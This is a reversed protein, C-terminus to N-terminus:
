IEEFNFACEDEDSNEKINCGKIEIKGMKILSSVDEESYKHIIDCKNDQFDRMTVLVINGSSVWMRKRMNGRVHALRQKNDHLCTVNFNKGGLVSDVRAYVQGDDTALILATSEQFNKGKKAKNGGRINRPM